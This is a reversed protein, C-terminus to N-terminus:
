IPIGFHGLSCRNLQHAVRVINNVGVYKELRHEQLGNRTWMPSSDGVLEEFIEKRHPLKECEFV